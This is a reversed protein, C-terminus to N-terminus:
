VLIGHCPQPVSEGTNIMRVFEPCTMENIAAICARVQSEPIDAFLDAREACTGGDADDIAMRCEEIPTGDCLERKVCYSECMNNCKEVNTWRTPEPAGGDQAATGGDRAPVIRGPHPEPLPEDVGSCAAVLAVVLM